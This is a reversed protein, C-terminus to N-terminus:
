GHTGGHRRLWEGLEGPEDGRDVRGCACVNASDGCGICVWEPPRDDGLLYCDRGCRCTAEPDTPRPDGM